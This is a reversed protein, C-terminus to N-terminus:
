VYLVHCLLLYLTCCRIKLKSAGSLSSARGPLSTSHPTPFSHPLCPLRSSLLSNSAPFMTLVLALLKSAMSLTEEPQCTVEPLDLLSCLFM